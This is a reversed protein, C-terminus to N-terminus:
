PEDLGLSAYFAFQIEQRVPSSPLSVEDRGNMEVLSFLDNRGIVERWREKYWLM